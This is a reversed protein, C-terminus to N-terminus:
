RSLRELRKSVAGGFGRPPKRLEFRAFVEEVDRPRLPGSRSRTLKSLTRAVAVQEDAALAVGYDRGEQWLAESVDAVDFLRYRDDVTSMEARNAEESPPTALAALVDALLRPHSRALVDALRSELTLRVGM